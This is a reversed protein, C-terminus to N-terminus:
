WCRRVVGRFANGVVVDDNESLYHAEAGWVEILASLDNDSFFVALVRNKARSLGDCHGRPLCQVM